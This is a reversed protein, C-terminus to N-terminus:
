YSPQHYNNNLKKRFPLPFIFFGSRIIFIPTTKFLIALNQALIVYCNQDTSSRRRDLVGVHDAWAYTEAIRGMGGVAHQGPGPEPPAREELCVLHIGSKNVRRTAFLGGKWHWIIGPLHDQSALIPPHRFFKSSTGRLGNLRCGGILLCEKNCIVMKGSCKVWSILGIRADCFWGASPPNLIICYPTCTIQELTPKQLAVWAEWLMSTWVLSLLDSSGLAATTCTSGKGRVAYQDLGPRLLDSSGRVALTCTRQMCPYMM